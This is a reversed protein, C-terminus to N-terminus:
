EIIRGPQFRLAIGHNPDRVPTLVPNREAKVSVRPTLPTLSSASDSVGTQPQIPAIRQARTKRRYYFERQKRLYTERDKYPMALVSELKLINRKIGLVLGRYRPQALVKQELKALAKRAGTLREVITLVHKMPERGRLTGYVSRNYQMLNHRR